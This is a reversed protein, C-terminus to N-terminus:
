PVIGKQAVAVRINQVENHADDALVSANEARQKAAAIQNRHDSLEIVCADLRKNLVGVEIKMNDLRTAMESTVGRVASISLEKFVVFAAFLFAMMAALGGSIKTFTTLYDPRTPM